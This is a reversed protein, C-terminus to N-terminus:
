GCFNHWKLQERVVFVGEFNGKKATKPGLFGTCFNWFKEGTYALLYWNVDKAEFHDFNTCSLHGFPRM